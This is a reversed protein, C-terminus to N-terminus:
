GILYPNNWGQKRTNKEAATRHEHYLDPIPLEEVKKRYLSGDEAKAVELLFEKSEDKVPGRAFSVTGRPGQIKAETLGDILGYKNTEKEKLADAFLLGSEYALLGYCSPKKGRNSIFWDTFEKTLPDSLDDKNWGSTVKLGIADDGLEALVDDEAMFFNGIIQDNTIGLAWCARLFSIAEKSSYYAMIFDMKDELGINLVETPDEERAGQHTVGSFVQTGGGSEVGIAGGMPSAYGGDHICAYSQCTKGIHEAGYKGGIWCSRWHNLSLSFVHDSVEAEFYPDEGLWNAILPVDSSKLIDNVDKFLGVNLPALIVDVNDKLIMSQVKDQVLPKSANYGGTEFVFEINSAGGKELGKQFASTIDKAVGNIFNSSPLLLGIKM